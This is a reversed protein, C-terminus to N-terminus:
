PLSPCATQPDEICLFQSSQLATYIYTHCASPHLWKVLLSFWFPFLLDCDGVVTLHLDLSHSHIHFHPPRYNVSCLQTHVRVNYEYQRWHLLIFLVKFRTKKVQWNSIGDASHMMICRWTLPCDHFFGCEGLHHAYLSIFMYGYLCPWRGQEKKINDWNTQCLYILM